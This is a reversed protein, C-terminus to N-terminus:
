GPCHNGKMNGIPCHCHDSYCYVTCHEDESVALTQEDCSRECNCAHAPPVSLEYNQHMCFWGQPPEAHHDHGPYPEEKQQAVSVALMLSFLLYRM